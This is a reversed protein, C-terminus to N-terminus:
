CAIACICRLNQCSGGISNEKSICIISCLKDGIPDSCEDIFIRSQEECYAEIQVVQEQTALFIILFFCMGAIPKMDM